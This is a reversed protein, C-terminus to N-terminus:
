LNDKKIDVSVIRGVEDGIENSHLILTDPNLVCDFFWDRQEEYEWDCMMDEDFELVITMTLQKM